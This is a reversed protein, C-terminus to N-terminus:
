SDYDDSVNDDNFADSSADDSGDDGNDVIQGRIEGGPNESTHFNAYVEGDELAEILTAFDDDALPGELAEASLTGSVDAFGCAAPGVAEDGTSGDDSGDDGVSGDDSTMRGFLVEQCAASSLEACADDSDEDDVMVVTRNGDALACGDSGPAGPVQLPVVVPGNIGRVGLHLHGAVAGELGFIRASYDITGDEDNVSLEMWGWADTVVAPNEQDGSLYAVYDAPDDLHQAGAVPAMLLALGTVAAGTVARITIRRM